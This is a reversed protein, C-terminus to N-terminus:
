LLANVVQMLDGRHIDLLQANRADDAFGMARLENRQTEYPLVPQAVPVAVPQAVPLAVVPAAAILSVPAAQPVSVLVPEVVPLPAAAAAAAPFDSKQEQPEAAEPNKTAHIDVWCRAGFPNRSPDALRYYAVYRGEREPVNLLASVEVEEQPSALPVDFEEQASLEADGRIFILKTGVPWESSGNNALKWVKVM